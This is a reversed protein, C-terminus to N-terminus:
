NKEVWKILKKSNSDYFGFGLSSQGSQLYLTFTIQQTNGSPLAALYDMKGYRFTLTGKGLLTQSQLIKEMKKVSVLTYYEQQLIIKTEHFMKREELLQEVHTSFYFLFVILISLTLPYTFGRQNLNM